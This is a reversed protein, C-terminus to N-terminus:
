SKDPGGDERPDAATKILALSEPVGFETPRSGCGSRTRSTLLQL